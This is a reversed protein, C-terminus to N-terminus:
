DVEKILSANIWGEVQDTKILYWNDKKQLYPYKQGYYVRGSVASSYFSEKFINTSSQSENLTLYGLIPTPKATPTNLLNPLSSDFLIDERDTQGLTQGRQDARIKVLERRIEALEEAIKDNQISPVSTEKATKESPSSSTVVPCSLKEKSLRNIKLFILFSLWFIFILIVALPVIFIKEKKAM